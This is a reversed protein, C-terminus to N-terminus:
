KLLSIDEGNWGKTSIGFALVGRFIEAFFQSCTICAGMTTEWHWWPNCLLQEWLEYLGKEWMRNVRNVKWVIQSMDINQVRLIVWHLRRVLLKNNSIQMIVHPCKSVNITTPDSVIQNPKRKAWPYFSCGIYQIKIELKEKTSNEKCPLSLSM